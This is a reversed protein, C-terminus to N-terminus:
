GQPEFVFPFQFTVSGGDPGPTFRFRQIVGVICSAVGANGMSNETARVNTVSGTEQITLSVRISGSLTPDSRLEREYCARIAAQRTQIMRIVVRADFDGAGSEDDADAPARFRGRVVREQVAGGETRAQTGAKTAALGGLGEQGGGVGGGGSRERLQGGGATTAVGVGTAQAMIDEASGTVAGGALVDAFAGGGESSLAGLLLQDVQATAAEVAMRAESDAREQRESAPGPDSSPSPEGRPAPETEAVETADESPAEETPEAEEEEPPPEPENFIMDALRDDITALTPSIPWDANELFIIFGFHSMFSFMVFATFLWDIGAIFGGVVAAPLQPRPQVPPPVVFHFLLTTQGITVKGRSTENLKVQWHSGANRAAGSARLEELKQVGGPLGVRGRMEETFNLIYDSGVLQFLEFRPPMGPVIFHNRESSGVTVTERQRVIREEVIKEGQIVAIQLVKPGSNPRVQVAQMAMTMAGPRGAPGKTGQQQPGQPTSM